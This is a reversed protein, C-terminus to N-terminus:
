LQTVNPTASILLQAGTMRWATYEQASLCKTGKKLFVFILGSLYRINIPYKQHIKRSTPV